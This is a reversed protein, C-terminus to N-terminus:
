HNFIGKFDENRGYYSGTNTVKIDDTIWIGMGNGGIFGRGTVSIAIDIMFSDYAITRSSFVYGSKHPISPSVRIFHDSFSVDRGVNFGLATSNFPYKLSLKYDHKLSEPFTSGALLNVLYGLIVVLNLMKLEFARCPNSGGGGQLSNFLLM